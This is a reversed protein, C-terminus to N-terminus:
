RLIAVVIMKPNDGGQRPSLLFLPAELLGFDL